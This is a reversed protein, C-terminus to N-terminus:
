LETGLPTVILLKDTVFDEQGTDSMGVAEKRKETYEPFFYQVPVELIKSFQHLRSASVRNVGNEYKQIQQFTLNVAEALKEQSMKLFSRRMRIRKGVHVDVPDPKRNTKKIAM